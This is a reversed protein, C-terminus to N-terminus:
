PSAEEKPPQAYLDFFCKAVIGNWLESSVVLLETDVLKEGDSLCWGQQPPLLGGLKASALFTKGSTLASGVRWTGLQDKHLWMSKDSSSWVKCGNAKLEPEVNYTTLANKPVPTDYCGNWVVSLSSKSGFELDLKILDGIEDTKLMCLGIKGALMSPLSVLKGAAVKCKEAVSVAISAM